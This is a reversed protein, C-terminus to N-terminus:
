AVVAAVDDDPHIMARGCFRPQYVFCMVFHQAIDTAGNGGLHLDWFQEPQLPVQAMGEILGTM